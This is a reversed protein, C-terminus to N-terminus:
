GTQIMRRNAEDISDDPRILAASTRELDTMVSLAPDDLAAREPFSQTPQAFGSNPLLRFSPLPAYNRLMRDGNGSRYESAPGACPTVVRLWYQITRFRLLNAVPRPTATLAVRLRHIGHRTLTGYPAPVLMSRHPSCCSVVRGELATM